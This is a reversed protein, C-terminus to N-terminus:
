LGFEKMNYVAIEIEEKDRGQARNEWCYSKCVVLYEDCVIIQAISYSEQIKYVKKRQQLDWFYIYGDQSATLLYQKYQQLSHVPYSTIEEENQTKHARFAFPDTGEIAVRGEVSAIAKRGDTLMLCSRTQHRLSSETQSLKNLIPQNMKSDIKYELIQRGALCLLLKSNILSSCFVRQSLMETLVPQNSKTDFVVLECALTTLVLHQNFQHLTRVPGAFKCLKSYQLSSIDFRYLCGDSCGVYVFSQQLLVCFPTALADCQAIQSMSSLQYVRVVNDWSGVALNGSQYSVCQISDSPTPNLVRRM